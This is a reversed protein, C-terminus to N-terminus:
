IRRVGFGMNILGVDPIGCLKEAGLLTEGTNFPIFCFFAKRKHINEEKFNIKFIRPM